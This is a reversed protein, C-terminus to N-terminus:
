AESKSEIKQLRQDKHEIFTLDTSPNLEIKETSATVSHTLFNFLLPAGIIFAPAFHTVIQLVVTTHCSEFRFFLKIFIHHFISSFITFIMAYFTMYLHNNQFPFTRRNESYLLNLLSIDM